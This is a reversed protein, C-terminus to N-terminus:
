KILIVKKGEANKKAFDGVSVITGGNAKIKEAAASSYQYAAVDVKKTLQGTALVKGPVVLTFGERAMKELKAINVEPKNRTPKLLESAVRIWIKTQTAKLERAVNELLINKAM